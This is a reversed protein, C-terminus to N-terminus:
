PPPVHCDGDRSGSPFAVTCSATIFGGAIQQLEQDTLPRAGIRGLVRNEQSNPM